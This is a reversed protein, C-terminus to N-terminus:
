FHLTDFEDAHLQGNSRFSISKSLTEKIYKKIKDCFRLNYLRKKVYFDCLLAQSASMRRGTYLYNAIICLFRAFIEAKKHM